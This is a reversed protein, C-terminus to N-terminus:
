SELEALMAQARREDVLDGKQRCVELAEDLAAAAEAARGGLRLVEALGLLSVARLDFYETPRSVEVAGTVSAIAEDLSGLGGLALGRVTRWRVDADVDGAITLREGLEAQALADAHRGQRYLAEGLDPAISSLHGLDDIEECLECAERLEAEAAAWDGALMEVAGAHRLASVMAVRDGVERSRQKSRGVLRRAEEFRGRMAELVSRDRDLFPEIRLDPSADRSLEDLQRLGEEVPTPGEVIGLGLWKISEAEQRRDGARRAHEVALRLQEMGLTVRGQWFRITGVISRAEALGPEDEWEEFREVYGEAERLSGLQDADPDLLIRVPIRRLSARVELRPEGAARAEAAAEGLVDHARRLDTRAMAAGLDVLAAPRQPDGAPLLDVARSLLNVAASIDWRALARRGASALLASAREALGLAREDAPGLEARYRSAQELHYGLIEEFEAARARAREQLWAAFREHLESRARKPLSEYAADRVLIHSFRFSDEGAFASRDPRVLEKRLLAQLRPGVHPREDEPSLEAVAGWWFVKGVVAARQIVAREGAELQDLRASLLATITPPVAIRSLDGRASWHGNTRELTGDDILMRLMEEVYLPNGEAADTIRERVTEALGTQGLLNEILLECERETLPELAVVVGARDWDPRTERISPRSSCLVLIPHDVSFGGVYQLLDLLTPEAWHIDEVVVALPRERAIAELLRRVAWFTEQIEGGGEEGLGIAASVRDAIEDGDEVSALLARVKARAEEVTDPEDLGAAAHVIEAIPWFTIGEGYPLCRAWVTRVRDGELEVLENVLRTKGLGADGVVTALRCTRRQIAEDLTQRLRALDGDRGVLPSDLRRAFAAAGPTVDLLRFAPVREAKGKLELPDVAKVIAADRVLRHTEEGLLVEGPEAAQELRAAVNVTDGTVFSQGSSPDGAVVEGTNIGIRVELRAGWDRELEVNLAALAERMESAARVARLADDEHVTPVGFVAMVADGIFKEVTGGHREVVARMEDAYRTMVGRMSEPDLREGLATSGTVDAFLATVTKRVEV